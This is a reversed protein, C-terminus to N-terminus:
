HGLVHGAVGAANHSVVVVTLSDVRGRVTVISDDFGPDLSKERITSFITTNVRM